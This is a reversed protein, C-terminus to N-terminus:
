TTGGALPHMHGDVLGPMLTRGHLDNVVTSAGVFAQVGADTGVYIIRGGRVAFAQQVSDHADVTYVKGNRYVAEAPETGHAGVAWGSALLCVIRLTARTM